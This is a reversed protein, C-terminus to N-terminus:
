MNRRYADIADDINDYYRTDNGNVYIGASCWAKLTPINHSVLLLGAQGRKVELVAETRRRFAEDGVATLEDILYYDYRYAMAIALALRAKMGASYDKVPQKWFEGVESFEAIYALRQRMTPADDGRIRCVFKANELGSLTAVLGSQLGLPPSVMGDCHLEGKDPLELGALMRILTSKGAGNRGVVGVFTNQPIHLNLGAYVVHRRGNRLTYAKHVNVLEISM